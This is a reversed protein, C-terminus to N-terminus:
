NGPESLDESTAVKVPTVQLITQVEEEKEVVAAVEGRWTASPTGCHHHLSVQQLFDLHHPSCPSQPM